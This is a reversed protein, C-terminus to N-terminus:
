DFRPLCLTYNGDKTFFFLYLFILISVSCSFVAITDRLLLHLCQTGVLFVQQQLAGDLGINTLAQLLGQWNERDADTFM